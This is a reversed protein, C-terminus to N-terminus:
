TGFHKELLVRASKGSPYDIVGLRAELHLCPLLASYDFEAGPHVDEKRHICLYFDTKPIKGSSAVRNNGPNLLSWSSTRLKM